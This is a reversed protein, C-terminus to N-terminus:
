LNPIRIYTRFLHHPLSQEPRTFLNASTLATRGSRLRWHQVVSFPFLFHQQKLHLQSNSACAGRWRFPPRKGAFMGLFLKLVKGNKTTCCQAGSPRNRATAKKLNGKKALCFLHSATPGGGVQSSRTSLLRFVCCGKKQFPFLWIVGGLFVVICILGSCVRSITTEADSNRWVFALSEVNEAVIARGTNLARM